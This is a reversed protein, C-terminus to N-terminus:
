SGEEPTLHAALELLLEDVVDHAHGAASMTAELDNGTKGLAYADSALIEVAVALHCAQQHRAETILRRLRRRTPM